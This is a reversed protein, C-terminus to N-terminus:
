QRFEPDTSGHGNLVFVRCEFDSKVLGDALAVMQKEAGGVDLSGIALLIKKRPTRNM